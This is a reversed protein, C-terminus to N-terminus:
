TRIMMAMQRQSRNLSETLADPANGQHSQPSISMRRTSMMLTMMKKTKTLTMMTTLVLRTLVAGPAIGTMLIDTAGSLASTVRASFSTLIKKMKDKGLSLGAGGGLEPFIRTMVITKGSLASEMAGNKGPVPPDYRQKAQM